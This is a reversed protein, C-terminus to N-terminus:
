SISSTGFSCFPQSSYLLSELSLLVANLQSAFASHIVKPSNTLACAIVAAANKQFQNLMLTKMLARKAKPRRAKQSKKKKLTKTEVKLCLTM